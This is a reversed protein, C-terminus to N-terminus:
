LLISHVSSFLQYISSARSSGICPTRPPTMQWCWCWLLVHLSHPADALVLSLPAHTIPQKNRSTFPVNMPIDSNHLSVFHLPMVLPASVATLTGYSELFLRLVMRSAFVCLAIKQKGVLYRYFGFMWPYRLGPNWLVMCVWVSVTGYALVRLYWVGRIGTTYRM